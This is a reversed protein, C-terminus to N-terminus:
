YLNEAFRRIFESVSMGEESAKRKLNERARPSLTMTVLIRKTDYDKMTFIEDKKEPCNTQVWSRAKNYNAESWIEYGNGAKTEGNEYVSFPSDKGGVGYVFFDGTQRRYLTETWDEDPNEGYVQGFTKQVTVLPTSKEIDYFKKDARKGM